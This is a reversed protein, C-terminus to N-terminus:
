QPVGGTGRHDGSDRAEDQADYIPSPALSSRIGGRDLIECTEENTEPSVVQSRWRSRLRSRHLSHHSLAYAIARAGRTGEAIALRL